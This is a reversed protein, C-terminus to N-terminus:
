KKLQVTKRDDKQQKQLIVIQDPNAKVLNLQSTAITEVRRLSRL